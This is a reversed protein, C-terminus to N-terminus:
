LSFARLDSIYPRAAPSGTLTLRLRASPGGHEAERYTRELSGDALPASSVQPLAEWEDDGNDMEVTLTAGSPLLTKMVADFRADTGVDFVRSVYDGSAQMTGAIALIDRGMLPSILESGSLLARVTVNGTFFSQRQWVQGPEILVPPEGAATIEFILRADSSPLEIEAEVLLDSLDEAPITGITVSRQLPNFRACRLRFTLDDDQHPTWTVANSSSFLVGVTYPQAGVFQQRAADFGERSAIALAHDADDTKFVVAFQRNGPLFVPYPFNFAQWTNVVVAQMSVECQAIIETTPFGNEMTVIECIVPNARNGIACFRIDIGTVHQPLPLAFSQALPDSYGEGAASAAAGEGDTSPMGEPLGSAGSWGQQEIFPARPPPDVQVRRITTVQQRTIKEIRGEGRFNAQGIRAAETIATVVKSGSTVRPPIDFTATIIGNADAVHPGGPPIVEIADFFVRSLEEGEGLNSLTFQVTIERLFRASVVERSTLTQVQTSAVTNGAGFVQTSPSLWTEETETWFDRAPSLRLSPAPPNFNMYPNIKMCGTTWEQAVVVVESFNLSTVGARSFSHFSPEIPIQFIGQFVAGSQEVGADRYRDSTFPDVFVGHKAVPERSDIDRRLREIAVLDITDMLRNFYRWQAEFSIARTGDNIVEPTGFWDNRVVALSLLMEPTRPPQPQEVAPIGKLYRTLGNQDLCIRDHRPLKWSYSVFVPQGTVGGSLTITRADVADPVVESLHRYTVQYSSSPAPEAGAPSWDVRDGSRVYDTTPVFTTGGQTVELIETVGTNSLLDTTGAVAGRTITESVEKTVIAGLVGNIPPRNVHIVATGSGGDNFTHPESSVTRLDPQEPERHRLSSQRTRKFGMINATGEAISFVQNDEDDLGLATVECGNAIYNAHADYDYRAIAQNIGSLSPPPSQDVVTGDKLMYVQYLDGAEGDGDYGWALTNVERIAGPEGHALTGEHLGLLAPEEEHTIIETVVRVGIIVTGEMPLDTLVVDPVARIDGRVYVMGPTLTATGAETDIIIEAGEIRDGSRATMKGIRGVRGRVLSFADQLDTAQAFAAERFVVEDGSVGAAVRDYVDALDPRDSYRRYQENAM